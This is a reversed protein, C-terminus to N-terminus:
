AVEDLCHAELFLSNPDAQKAAKALARTARIANVALNAPRGHRMDLGDPGVAFHYTASRPVLVFTGDADTTLTCDHVVEGSGGKGMAVSYSRPGKARGTDGFELLVMSLGQAAAALRACEGLISGRRTASVFITKSYRGAATDVHGKEMLNSAAVAFRKMHALGNMVEYDKQEYAAGCAKGM